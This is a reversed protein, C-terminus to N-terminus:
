FTGEFTHMSNLIKGLYSEVTIEDFATGQASAVRWGMMQGGSCKAM